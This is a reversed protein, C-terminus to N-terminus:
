LPAIVEWNELQEDVQELEITSYHGGIHRATCWVSYLVVNYRLLMLGIKNLRANYAVYMDM